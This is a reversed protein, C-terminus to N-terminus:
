WGCYCYARHPPKENSCWATQGVPCCVSCGPNGGANCCACCTKNTHSFAAAANGHHPPSVVVILGLIIARIMEVDTGINEDQRPLASSPCRLLYRGRWALLFDRRDVPTGRSSARM